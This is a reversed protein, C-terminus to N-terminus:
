NTLFTLVIDPFTLTNKVVCSFSSNTLVSCPVQEAHLTVLHMHIPLLRISCAPERCNKDFSVRYVAHVLWRCYFLLRWNQRSNQALIALGHFLLSPRAVLIDKYRHKRRVLRRFVRLDLGIMYDTVLYRQFSNTILYGVFVFM